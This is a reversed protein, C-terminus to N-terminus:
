HRAIYVSVGVGVGVSVYISAPPVGLTIFLKRARQSIVIFDSLLFINFLSVFTCCFYPSSLYFLCESPKQLEELCLVTDLGKRGHLQIKNRSWHYIWQIRKLYLGLFPFQWGKASMASHKWIFYFLCLVSLSGTHLDEQRRCLFYLYKWALDFTYMISAFFSSIRNIRSFFLRGILIHVGM